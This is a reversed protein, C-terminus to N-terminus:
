VYVGGWGGWGRPSSHGGWLCVVCGCVCAFVCVGCCVFGECVVGGGCVWGAGWLVCVGVLIELNVILGTQKNATRFHCLGVHTSNMMSLNHQCKLTASHTIVTCSLTCVYDM